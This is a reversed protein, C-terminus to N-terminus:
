ARVFIGDAQLLRGSRPDEFGPELGALELGAEELLDVVDRWLPAGDYLAVLSLEAQVAAVQALRAGAGRLAQREFGQVDLKLWVREGPRVVEEWLGDLRATRVPETGVYASDPASALHRERMPLLSSSCSNGAVNLVAEGDADGLALRRAEWRPDAAAAAALAAYAESLPEFSVIRGAYGAARTRRAYQGANAGVDLLLGVDLHALLRARRADQAPVPDALARARLEYGLRNATRHAREAAFARLRRLRGSSTPPGM